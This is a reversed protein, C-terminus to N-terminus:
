RTWFTAEGDGPVYSWNAPDVAVKHLGPDAFKALLTLSRGKVPFFGLRRLDGLQPSTPSELFRYKFTHIGLRRFYRVTERLLARAVDQRGPLTMLDLISSEVGRRWGSTMVRLVAYGLLTEGDRVGLITVPAAPSGPGYRWHLFAADKEPVCPVVSAVAEFLTDFSEDFEELVQVKLDGGFARALAEDVVWLGANLLRKLPAPVPMRPRGKPVGRVPVTWEPLHLLRRVPEPVPPVPLMSLDLLKAEYKLQGVVTGGMRTEIQIVGPKLNCAVYNECTRFFKRMLALAHFGYEPLVQYDTPTYAVVRQGNIWYYQPMAALHGVVRDDAVLAWRHMESGLPHSALWCWISHNWEVDYGNVWDHYVLTRLKDVGEQLEPSDVPQVVVKM